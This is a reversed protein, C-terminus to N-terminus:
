PRRPAILKSSACPRVSWHLGIAVNGDKLGIHRANRAALSTTVIMVTDALTKVM